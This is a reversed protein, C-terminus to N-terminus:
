KLINKQALALTCIFEASPFKQRCRRFSNNLINKDHQANHCIIKQNTLLNTLDNIIQTLPQHNVRNTKKDRTEVFAEYVLKGQPNIIAIERLTDSGETDIVIFEM